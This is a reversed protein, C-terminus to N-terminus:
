RQWQVAFIGRLANCLCVAEAAELDHLTLSREQAQWPANEIAYRRMTGALVGDSLPPTFWQGQLKVLLTSRGGETLHGHENQFLADFAGQQEAARWADDYVARFTTKHRLLYDGSHLIQGALIVRPLANEPTSLPALPFTQAIIQGDPQLQIRVRQAQLGAMRVMNETEERLAAFQQDAFPIGLAAASSRLRQWHLEAQRIDGGAAMMTEILGAQPLLGTLFRAKLQCEEFELQPDSDFVIGAGVGLVGRRYRGKADQIAPQLQLTRIPVALCFDPLDGDKSVPDFWGIAGTYVHRAETELERIIEMTRRKPAGTISGCPYLADMLAGLTLGQRCRAEITSTMQLVSSFRTVEFLRPVQVSGTEAVRGLDNRLLDVIMLNEARNKIDQSLAQARAQDEAADGSAGATGKMPRARLTGQQHQVFLEPSFSLITQQDPLRILAGYPVPQRERLRRYLDVPEGYADFHLRYTYNVQYTDGARIYDRIRQIADCFAERQVSPRIEAIGSLGPERQNLWAEVQERSLQHCESFLLIQSAQQDARPSVGQLMAGTEYSLVSVAYLGRQLAQQVQQWCDQWQAPGACVVTGAHGLYLRSAKGDSRADDLLAFCTEGTLVTASPLDSM